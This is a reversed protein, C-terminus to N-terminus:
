TIMLFKKKQPLLINNNIPTTPLSDQLRHWQDTVTSNKLHFSHRTFMFPTTIYICDATCHNRLTGPQADVPIMVEEPNIESRFYLWGPTINECTNMIQVGGDFTLAPRDAQMYFKGQFMFAPSLTFNDESIIEGSGVSTLDSNVSVERFRLLQTNNNIDVYEYDATGNYSNRATINVSANFLNFYQNTRNAVIGSNVIKRLKGDPNVILEERYPYIRADAVDIYRVRTAKLLTSDYDYYALPSVFSLSDQAPDLSFYRAGTFGDENETVGAQAPTGMVLINNEKQWTINDLYSMYKNEPFSALTFEENSIFTGTQENFDVLAQM